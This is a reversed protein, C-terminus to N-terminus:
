AVATRYEPPVATHYEADFVYDDPVEIKSQHDILNWLEDSPVGTVRVQRRRSTTMGVGHMFYDNSIYVPEDAKYPRWAAERDLSWYLPSGGSSINIAIVVFGDAFLRNALKHGSFQKAAKMDRHIGAFTGPELSVCHVNRIDKFPLNEQIWKWIALDRFEPRIGFKIPARLTENRIAIHHKFKHLIPDEIGTLDPELLQVQQWMPYGRKEIHSQAATGTQVFVDCKNYIAPDVMGWARNLETTAINDWKATCIPTGLPLIREDYEKAFADHDFDLNLKAYALNALNM